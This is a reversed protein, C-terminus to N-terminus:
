LHQQERYQSPSMGTKKKFLNSFYHPDTYGLQFAIQSITLYTEQMMMLASDMNNSLVYKYVTSGTEKKFLRNIQKFSLGIHKSLKDSHFSAQIQNDLYNKIKQVESSYPMANRYKLNSLAIVIQHLIVPLEAHME